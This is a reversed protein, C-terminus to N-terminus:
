KAQVMTLYKLGGNSWVQVIRRLQGHDYEPTAEREMGDSMREIEGKASYDILLREGTGNTVAVLHLQMDGARAFLFSSGDEMHIVKLKELDELEAGMENASYVKSLGRRMFCVMRKGPQDDAAVWWAYYGGNISFRLPQLLSVEFNKGKYILDDPGFGGKNGIAQFLSHGPLANWALRPTENLTSQRQQGHTTLWGGLLVIVVLLKRKM